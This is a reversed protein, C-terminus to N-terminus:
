ALHCPTLENVEQLCSKLVQRLVADVARDMEDTHVPAMHGFHHGSTLRDIVFEFVENDPDFVIAAHACEVAGPMLQDKGELFTLRRVDVGKLGALM